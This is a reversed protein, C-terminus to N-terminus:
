RHADFTAPENRAVAGGVDGWSGIGYGPVSVVAGTEDVVQHNKILDAWFQNTECVEPGMHGRRAPGSKWITVYQPARCTVADPDSKGSPTDQMVVADEPVFGPAAYASLPLLAFIAGAIAYRM